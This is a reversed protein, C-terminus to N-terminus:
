RGVILPVELFKCRPPSLFFFQSLFNGCDDQNFYCVKLTRRRQFDRSRCGDFLSVFFLFHFGFFEVVIVNTSLAHRSGRFLLKFDPQFQGRLNCRISFIFLFHANCLLSRYCNYVAFFIHLSLVEGEFM